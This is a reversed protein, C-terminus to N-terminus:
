HINAERKASKKKVRSPYEQHEQRRDLFELDIQRLVGDTVLIQIQARTTIQEIFTKLSDNEM